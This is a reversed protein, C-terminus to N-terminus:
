NLYHPRHKCLGPETHLILISSGLRSVIGRLCNQLRHQAKGGKGCRSFPAQLSSKWKFKHKEREANGKLVCSEVADAKWLLQCPTVRYMIFNHLSIALRNTKLAQDSGSKAKQPQLYMKKGNSCPPKELQFWQHYSRDSYPKKEGRGSKSKRWGM